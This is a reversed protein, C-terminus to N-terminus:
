GLVDFMAVLFAEVYELRFKNPPRACAYECAYLKWYHYNCTLLAVYHETVGDPDCSAAKVCSVVAYMEPYLQLYYSSCLAVGREM